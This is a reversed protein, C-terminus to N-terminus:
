FLFPDLDLSRIAVPKLSSFFDYRTESWLLFGTGFFFFQESGCLPEIHSPDPDKDENKYPGAFIKFYMRFESGPRPLSISESGTELGNYPGM